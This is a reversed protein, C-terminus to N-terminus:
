DFKDRADALAHIVGTIQEISREMLLMAHNLREEGHYEEGDTGEVLEIVIFDALTDGCKHQTAEDVTQPFELPFDGYGDYGGSAIKILEEDSLTIPKNLREKHCDRCRGHDSITVDDFCSDGCEPCKCECIHGGNGEAPWECVCCYHEEYEEDEPDPFEYGCNYCPSQDTKQGCQPCDAGTLHM